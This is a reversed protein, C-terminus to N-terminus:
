KIRFYNKYYDLEFWNVSNRDATRIDIKYSDTLKTLFICILLQVGLTFKRLIENYDQIKDNLKYTLLQRIYLNSLDDLTKHKESILKSIHSRIFKYKKVNMGKCIIHFSDKIFSDETQKFIIVSSFIYSLLKLTDTIAISIISPFKILFGFNAEKEIIEDKLLFIKLIESSIGTNNYCYSYNKLESGKKFNIKKDKMFFGEHSFDFLHTEKIKLELDKMVISLPKEDREVINEFLYNRLEKNTSDRENFLQLFEHLVAFTLFYFSDTTSYTSPGFELDLDSASIGDISPLSTKFLITEKLTKKEELIKTITKIDKLKLSDVEM